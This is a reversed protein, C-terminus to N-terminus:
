TFWNHHTLIYWFGELDLALRSNAAELRNEVTGCLECPSYEVHWWILASIFLYETLNHLESFRFLYSVAVCHRCTGAFSSAVVPERRLKNLSVLCLSFTKRLCVHKKFVQSHKHNSKTRQDLQVSHFGKRSWATWAVTLPFSVTRLMDTCSTPQNPCM